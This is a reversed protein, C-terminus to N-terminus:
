LITGLLSFILFLVGFVATAIVITKELGRKTRYNEGGWLTSSLGGEQSQLMILGMLVLTVIIQAVKFFTSM